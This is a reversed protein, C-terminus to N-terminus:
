RTPGPQFAQDGTQWLIFALRDALEANRQEPTQSVGHGGATEVRLLVPKGSSTAAQMRSFTKFTIWPAVRNDNMGATFLMAPFKEGDKVQHYTSMALLQKVGDETALSGMEDVHNPGNSTAEIFRIADTIGVRVIGVAFLDPRETVARGVAVGGMSTGQIAVKGASTYNRSILTQACAIMDRWTNSKRAGVGAQYWEFGFAGGGRPKVEAFIGGRELFAGTRPSYYAPEPVGYGGYGDLLVPHSGDKKLGRLYVLSVPVETGDWSTCTTEESTWADAAHSVHPTVISTASSRSGHAALIQQAHTWGELTFVVGPARPSGGLLETAGEFPLSVREPRGSADGHVPLHFVGGVSGTRVTFYLGDATGQMGEIVGRQQAVVEIPATGPHDLDYRVVRSRPTGKVTRAFLWHGSITVDRVQADTDILPTWAAHAPDTSVDNAATVWVRLSSSVGQSLMVVLHHKDGMDSAVWDRDGVKPGFAEGAGAVLRESGGALSRRWLQMHGFPEPAAADAASAGSAAAVPVARRLGAAHASESLTYFYSRSDPAWTAALEGWVYPTPPLVDEGTAVSFVRLDGLEADAQSVVATVYRGDPSATYNNIAHVIGSQRKWQEPDLLLREPADPRARTYLKVTNEGALRKLYFWRGAATVQLSQVSDTRDADLANVRQSLAALGPLRDLQARTWAGEANAWQQTAPAALDELARYPDAIKVGHYDTVLDGPTARPQAEDARAGTASAILLLAALLTLARSRPTARPSTSSPSLFPQRLTPNQNM